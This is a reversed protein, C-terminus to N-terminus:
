FNACMILVFNHLFPACVNFFACLCGLCGLCNTDEAKRMKPWPWKKSEKKPAWTCTSQSKHDVILLYMLSNTIIFLKLDLKVLSWWGVFDFGTFKNTGVQSNADISKYVTSKFDLCNILFLFSCWNSFVKKIMVYNPGNDPEM